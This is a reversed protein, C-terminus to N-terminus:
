PKSRGIRYLHEKTRIFLTGDAVAPSALTREALDNKSVVEFTPAAKVVTCLGAENIFYVRGEAGILSASYDGALRENWLVKGTAAEACTAVGGDSVFYVRGQDVLVSPTNPAGRNTQWVIHSGTLDGEGGPRIALLSARDYGTGIFLLGNAFM